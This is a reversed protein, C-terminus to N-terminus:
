YPASFTDVVGHYFMNISPDFLKTLFRLACEIGECGEGGSVQSSLHGSFCIILDPAKFSKIVLAHLGPLDFIPQGAVQFTSKPCFYFPLLGHM